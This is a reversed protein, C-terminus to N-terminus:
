LAGRAVIREGDHDVALPGSINWLQRAIHEAARPRALARSREAMAVRREPQALLAIVADAAAIPQPAWIGARHEVVYTVNGEEQGPLATYLVVPLGSVFAEALTNPGAKTVLIDAARMWVEINSLFGEVQLPAPLKLARLADYLARNRGAVVVLHAAPRRAAIARVVPLVPGMGEGGGVILVIPRDQPLHLRGRAVARELDQTEVFRHRTPMGTIRVRAPEIGLQLARTRAAETPVFYFDAGPAFWGAHVSVLDLAVVVFPAALALKQRALLLAVNPISHFSVLVDAPHQQLLHCLPKAAYPWFLHSLSTIRPLTDTLHYTMQWPFTGMGVIAPYWAPFHDFPWRHMEVFIDVMEVDAADGYLRSFEDKVAQAGARHGGGTDSFLFLFRRPCPMVIHLADHRRLGVMM